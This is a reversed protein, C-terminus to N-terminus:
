DKHGVLYRGQAVATYGAAEAPSEPFTVTIPVSDGPQLIEKIDILRFARVMGDDYLTVVIKIENVPKESDNLVRGTVLYGGLDRTEGSIDQVSLQVFSDVLDSASDAALVQTLASTAEGADSFRTALPLSQGPWLFDIPSFAEAKRGTPGDPLVLTVQVALNIIPKSGRNSAEGLCLLGGAPTPYCNFQSIILALPTPTPLSLSGHGAEGQPIVLLQGPQLNLPNIEGNVAQLAELTVDHDLAIGILTEGEIVTHLM